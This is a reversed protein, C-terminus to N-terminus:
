GSIKGLAPANKGHGDVELVGLGIAEGARDGFRPALGQEELASVEAAGVDFPRNGSGTRSRHRSAGPPRSCRVFPLAGRRPPAQGPAGAM